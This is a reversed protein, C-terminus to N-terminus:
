KSKRRRVAALGLLGLGLSAVTAPEPVNGTSPLPNSPTTSGYYYSSGTLTGNTLGQVHVANYHGAADQSQFSALSLNVGSLLYTSSMSTPYQLQGPNATDFSFGLDFGNDGGFGNVGTTEVAKSTTAGGTNVASTVLSGGALNFAWDNVYAHADLGQLATMTVSIQNSGTETITATAFVAPDTVKVDGNYYNDLSFYYTITDAKAASLAGASMVFLAAAAIKSMKM